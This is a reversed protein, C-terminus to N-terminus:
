NLSHQHGDDESRVYAVELIRGRKTMIPAVRVRRTMIARDRDPNTMRESDQTLKMMTAGM